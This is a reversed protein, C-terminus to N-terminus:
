PTDFACRLSSARQQQHLSCTRRHQPINLRQHMTRRTWTSPTWSPKGQAHSVRLMQLTSHMNCVDIMLFVSMMISHLMCTAITTCFASCAAIRAVICVAMWAPHRCAAYHLAMCAPVCVAFCAASWAAICLTTRVAIHLAM